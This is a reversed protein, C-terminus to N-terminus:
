SPKNSITSKSDDAIWFIMENKADDWACEIFGKAALKALGVGYLWERIENFIKNFIKTTIIHNDNQDLGLSYKTILNKIQTISIFEDLNEAYEESFSKAVGDRITLAYNDLDVISYKKM